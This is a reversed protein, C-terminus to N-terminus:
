RLKALKLTREFTEGKLTAKIVAFYVGNAVLAGDEDRGDWDIEHYGPDWVEDPYKENRTIKRILRGSVTYIKIDFDDLVNGAIIQMSIITSEEFPNPYNGYVQIQFDGSIIFDVSRSATNGKSDRASVTLNHPGTTLEPTTLISIANANQISDPYNIRDEPLTSNDVLVSFGTSLNIGNKDQLILAIRPNEPIMMNEHVARGNVTIEIEPESTDNIHFLAFEGASPTTTYIKGAAISSNLAVWRELAPAYYCIFVDQLISDAYQGTDFSFELYAPSLIRTSPNLLDVQISLSDASGTFPLSSFGPQKTSELYNIMQHRSFRVVSSASVGQPVVHYRCIDQYNITDNVLGDRTTGLQYTISFRDASFSTYEANNNEYREVLKNQYDIVGYLKRNPTLLAVDVPISLNITELSKLDVLQTIFPTEQGTYNDLFFGLDVQNLDQSSNNRIKVQLEIGLTGGLVVSNKIVELDPRPDSVMFHHLRSLYIKGDTDRIEIDFSITDANLYPGFGDTHTWLSDGRRALDLIYFKGNSGKLNVLRVRDLNLPSSIYVSFFVRDGVQLNEPYVQVSDVMPKNLTLSWSGRADRDNATNLAYAKVFLYQDTLSAPIPFSVNGSSNNLNYFEEKIVEHKENDLEIRGSGSSFPSQINITLTDGGQPMSKNGTLKLEDPPSNLFVFPDGLLNYQNVMSYKLGAFTPIITTYNETVYEDNALYHIEAFLVAQGVTLGPTFLFSTLNWGLAFDNYMWGLGSSAYLGIAGKAPALLLKEAIAKISSNEFSGTFCTMSTIFPYKGQNNMRDIDDTNLLQVDSWIGGGGHGFFNVLSLGDDFYNILDTTSGFNPDLPVSIDKITNLKRSMYSRSLNMNILRQNQVRFVPQRSFYEVAGADNGSIFLGKNRWEGRNAPNEFEKIKQFYANFESNDRIPIRGIILDPIRDNGSVLAYLDDSATAGYKQTEFLLTPVFDQQDGGTTKYDYSADGVLVVYLLPKSQDWNEYAYRLFDRIAIPSKIGYNFEDYIDEVRAIATKLGAQERYSKLQMTNEYFLGDTIILYEAGNSADLLSPEVQNSTWPLDPIIRLPKKKADPTLAIYEIDPYFIEDQFSLRYSSANDAATIYDVRNNVLKSIGLKYLEINSSTFGDVEFQFLNLTDSLPNLRIDDKKFKIFNKYARYQRQYTIEFWNLLTIDTVGPQDMVIRLDNEGHQISKQSIGQKGINSISQLEQNMWTGSDGIKEDNLWIEVQHNDYKNYKEDYLSLGRMMIRAFVNRTGADFPYTLFVKYTRSGVASVGNDYFWHDARYGASDVNANGLRIFSIDREFHMTETFYPLTRRYYLPDTKILGGNEEVMRIGNKEGIEFWYVNVDTFPDNYLDPYKEDPQYKNKEGWFEFYDGPDFVGDEGGKFYIPIERGRNYVSLKRTDLRDVPIEYKILDDYRIQYLGDDNILIKYRGNKYRYAAPNAKALVNASKYTVANGNLLIKSLFSKESASVSQVASEGMKFVASTSLNVTISKIYEAQNNVPDIKVPYFRLSFLHLGRFIGQYSIEVWPKDKVPPVPEPASEPSHDQNYLYNEVPSKGTLINKISFSIKEAPLSFLKMVVPIYPYDKEQISPWGQYYLYTHASENGTAPFIGKQPEPFAAEVTLTAPSSQLYTIQVEQANVSLSLLILFIIVPRLYKKNM